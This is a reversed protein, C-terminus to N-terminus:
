HIHKFIQFIGKHNKKKHLYKLCTPPFLNFSQSPSVSIKFHIICFPPRCVVSFRQDTRLDGMKEAVYILSLHNGQIGTHCYPLHIRISQHKQLVLIANTGVRAGLVYLKCWHSNVESSTHVNGLNHAFYESSHPLPNQPNLISIKILNIFLM